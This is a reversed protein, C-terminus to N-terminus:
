IRKRNGIRQSRLCPVGKCLDMWKVDTSPTAKGTGSVRSLALTVTTHSVTVMGTGKRAKAKGGM